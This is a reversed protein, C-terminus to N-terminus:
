KRDGLLYIACDGGPQGNAVSEGDVGEQGNAGGLSGGGGTGSRGRPVRGTTYLDFSTAEGGGSGGGGGGVGRDSTVGNPLGPSGSEGIKGDGGVKVSVSKNTDFFIVRSFYKNTSPIGGSGAYSTSGNTGDGGGKGSKLYIYYWGKKLNIEYTGKKGEIIAGNRIESNKDPTFSQYLVWNLIRRGDALYCGQKEANWKGPRNVLAATTVKNEDEGIAIWYTSKIKFTNLEIKETIKFLFGNVEIIGGAPIIVLGTNEDYFPECTDLGTQIMYMNENQRQYGSKVGNPVNDPNPIKELGIM